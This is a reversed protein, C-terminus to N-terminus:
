GRWGNRFSRIAARELGAAKRDARRAARKGPRGLGGGRITGAIRRYEAALEADTKREIGVPIRIKM